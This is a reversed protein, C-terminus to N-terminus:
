MGITYVNQVAWERRLMTRFLHDQLLRRKPLIMRVQVYGMLSGENTASTHIVVMNRGSDQSIM